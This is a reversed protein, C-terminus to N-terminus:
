DVARSGPRTDGDDGFGMDVGDFMATLPLESVAAVVFDKFIHIQPVNRYTLVRDHGLDITLMGSRTLRQWPSQAIDLQYVAALAIQHERRRAAGRRHILRSSTLIYWTTSWRLFPLMFIRLWLALLLFGGAAAALPLWPEAWGAPTGRSAWGLAFGTLALLGLLGLFPGILVSLHARTRVVVREGAALKVRM